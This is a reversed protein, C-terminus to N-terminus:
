RLIRRIPQLDDKRYGWYLNNTTYGRTWPNASSLDATSYTRSSRGTTVDSNSRYRREDFSVAKTHGNRNRNRNRNKYVISM